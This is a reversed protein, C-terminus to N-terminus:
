RKFDFRIKLHKPKEAVYTSQRRKRARLIAVLLVFMVGIMIGSFFILAESSGLQISRAKEPQFYIDLNSLELAYEAYLLASYIDKEKLSIAYEYYSYGLIPFVGNDQQKIISKRAAELKRDLLNGFDEKRVGISSSVVDIQSKTLTAKYLCLAYDEDKYSQRADEINAAADTLIGKFLYEIYNYQEEAESIKNMCSEILEQKTIKFEKGDKGLFNSWSGASNYREEAYALDDAALGMNSENGMTKARSKNLFDDAENLRDKVVMYAQLDTLTKIRFGNVYDIMGTINKGLRGILAITEKESLDQIRLILSSYKVNAGFCYSAASYYREDGFAMEGEITLNEAKKKQDRFESTIMSANSVRFAELEDKLIMSRRCLEDSLGKMTDEYGPNMDMNGDSSNFLRGTYHYLAEDVSGVEIVEMGKQKGYEIMDETANDTANDKEIFREGVPVLVKKLSGSFAADIKEKVGGVPGILNGSNITGTIVTEQDLKIGGLMSITLITIAAGASPGGVIPSDARITYFFDLGSCDLNLYKCAMDKAFRTSLQTDVKATPQTDMFVRGSGPKIELDLYAISGVLGAPSESVALLRIESREANVSPSSAIFLIVSSAIFIVAFLFDGTYKAEKM